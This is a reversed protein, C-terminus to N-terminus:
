TFARYGHYHLLMIALSAHASLYFIAFTALFKCTMHSCGSNKEIAWGCGGCPKTTARLTAISKAEEMKRRTAIQRREEAAKQASAKERLARQREQRERELERQREQNKQRERARERQREQNEQRERVRLRQREQKERELERRREQYKQRERERERQSKQRERERERERQDQAEQRKIKAKEKAVFRSALDRDAEEQAAQAAQAKSWRENELELHGRFDPDEQLRDYEECSLDEHWNVGHRFCSRHSCKICVVIPQASGSDHIQGSGCDSTCWFFNEDEEVAARLAQREYKAITHEDAFRQIDNYELNEQCEDCRIDTWRKSKMGVQISREMCDLCISPTHTCKSTVFDPFSDTAKIDSCVICERRDIARTTTADSDLSEPLDVYPSASSSSSSSAAAAATNIVPREHSPIRDHRIDSIKTDTNELDFDAFNLISAPTPHYGQRPSLASTVGHAVVIDRCSEATFDFDDLFSPRQYRFPAQTSPAPTTDYAQSQATNSSSSGQSKSTPNQVATASEDDGFGSTIASDARGYFIGNQSAMNNTRAVKSQQRPPQIPPGQETNHRRSPSPRSNSYPPNRSRDPSPRTSKAAVRNTPQTVAATGTGTGNRTRPASTQNTSTSTSASTAAKVEKKKPVVKYGKSGKFCLM